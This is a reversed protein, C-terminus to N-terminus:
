KNLRKKKIKYPLQRGPQLCALRFLDFTSASWNVLFCTWQTREWLPAFLLRFSIDGKRARNASLVFIPGVTILLSFLKDSLTVFYEDRAENKVSKKKRSLPAATLEPSRERRRLDVCDRLRSFSLVEHSWDKGSQSKKLVGQPIEPVYLPPWMILKSQIRMQWFFFLVDFTGTRFYRSATMWWSVGRYDGSWQAWKNRPKSQRAATQRQKTLTWFFHNKKKNKKRWM